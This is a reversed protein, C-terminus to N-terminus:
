NLGNYFSRSGGFIIPLVQSSGFSNKLIHVESIRNDRDASYPYRHHALVVDCADVIESNINELKPIDNLKWQENRNMGCTLIITINKQECINKLRQLTDRANRSSFGKVKEISDIFVIGVNDYRAIIKEVGSVSQREKDFVQIELHNDFDGGVADSLKKEVYHKKLECSFLLIKKRICLANKAIIDLMLTTKGMGPRAALSIMKGKFDDAALISDITNFFGKEGRDNFM